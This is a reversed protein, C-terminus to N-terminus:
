GQQVHIIALELEHIRGKIAAREEDTQAVKLQKKLDAIQLRGRYVAESKVVPSVRTSAPDFNSQGVAVENNAPAM